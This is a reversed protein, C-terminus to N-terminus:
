NRPPSCHDILECKFRNRPTCFAWQIENYSKDFRQVICSKLKMDCHCGATTWQYGQKESYCWENPEMNSFCDHDTECPMNIGATRVFHGGLCDFNPNQSTADQVCGHSSYINVPPFCRVDRMSEVSAAVLIFIAACIFSNM